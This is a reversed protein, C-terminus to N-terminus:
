DKRVIGHTRIIDHQVLAIQRKPIRIEEVSVGFGPFSIAPIRMDEIEIIDTQPKRYRVIGRMVISKLEPDYIDRLDSFLPPIGKFILSVFLVLFVRVRERIHHVRINLKAPM